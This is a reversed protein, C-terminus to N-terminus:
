AAARESNQMMGLPALDEDGPAFPEDIPKLTSLLTFCVARAFQSWLSAIVKKERM